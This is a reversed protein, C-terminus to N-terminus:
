PSNGTVALVTADDKKIALKRILKTAILQAPDREIMPFHDWQWPTRLGDTHLVLLWCPDWCFDQVQVRVEGIGLIGRQVVFPIRQQPGRVRAEINGVTAFRLRDRSAFRALAMVVGRTARCARAVGLFINDLPQDFHTQVYRQAELAARQAFEGHGLGDILGVLLEGQSEKVVFADGNEHTSSCSRTAVGIDWVRATCPELPPRIWRRCVIRTGSGCESNIDLEDMLRNVTGLGYGLTGRTSYGDTISREIDAIGPGDDTAEVEIGTRDGFTVPRLTLCGHSAHKVLNSTLEAVVLTIEQAADGSFGLTLAMRHASQQASGRDLEQAVVIEIGKIRDM